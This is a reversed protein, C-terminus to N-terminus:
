NDPLLVSSVEKEWYILKKDIAKDLKIVDYTCIGCGALQTDIYDKYHLGYLNWIMSDILINTEKSYSELLGKIDTQGECPTGTFVIKRLRNLKSAKEVLSLM